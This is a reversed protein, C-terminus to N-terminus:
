LGKITIAEFLNQAEILSRVLVDKIAGYCKLAIDDKLRIKRTIDRGMDSYGTKLEIDMGSSPSCDRMLGLLEELTCLEGHIKAIESFEEKKM